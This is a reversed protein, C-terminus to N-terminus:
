QWQCVFLGHIASGALAGESRDNSIMLICEMFMFGDCFRSQYAGNSAYSRTLMVTLCLMNQM